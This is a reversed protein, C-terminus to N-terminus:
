RFWYATKTEYVDGKKLLISPFQPNQNWNPYCQSELCFSHRNSSFFQMGPLDTWTEMTIGSEDGTTVAVQRFGEGDLCFNHDYGHPYSIYLNDADIDQGIPKPTRFDFPTGAVPLLEGTPLLDPSCATMRTAHIQMKHNLILGATEGTTGNLNFYSHNTLNCLTDADSVAHYSITLRHEADFTFTVSVTLTGPYGEEGDPSVRSFKVTHDDVIEGEWMRKDFGKAGGHLHNPGDNALVQYVKGNIEFKSAGLRNGVRGITAGWFGGAKQYGQVDAHGMVVDRLKGAKDPVVIETITAGYDTIAAYAGDALEIKYLSAAEGDIGTGFPLKTVM